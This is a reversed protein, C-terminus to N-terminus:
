RASKVSNLAFLDRVVKSYNDSDQETAHERLNTTPEHLVKNVVRHAFHEIAARDTDSLHELRQLVSLLEESVVDNVKERLDRIVPVVKRGALWTICKDLEDDIISHVEPICAERQAVHLGVVQQLDDIDFVVAGNLEDVTADINRPVAVDVMVLERLKRMQMVVEMEEYQLLTHPAGTATMVADTTKLTDHLKHWETAQVGFEDALIKSREFTRNIIEVNTINHNVLARVCIKAMEGAGVVVVHPNEIHHLSETVKQAAVHSVSTTHESIATEHRARKGTHVADSFVRNLVTGSAGIKQASDFSRNVQGLIQPEGLIMSDLGSSVVMLHKIADRDHRVFHHDQLIQADVEFWKGLYEILHTEARFVNDTVCYLEVRNCTSLIIAENISNLQNVLEALLAAARAEDVFLQERIEVPTNRYNFGILLVNM